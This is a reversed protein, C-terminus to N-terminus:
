LAILKTTDNVKISNHKGFLSIFYLDCVNASGPYAWPAGGTLGIKLKM